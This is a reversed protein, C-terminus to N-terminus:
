VLRASLTQEAAREGSKFSEDTWMYGWDGYRGCYAIRVDDLYAHVTKLAAERELDFIVNAYNLLTASSFLIRDSDKLLGCRRLGAIVPDILEDPSQKLPKYKESFYVEAQISGADQPVNSASLLHPFSLRSFCIEEDYFYTVHATSIDERNIGVNVLVCTSCALRRSADLVDEPVGQIMRILDPLPVSSILAGYGAVMGNSFRLRRLHPDVSVLEHGLQLRGM